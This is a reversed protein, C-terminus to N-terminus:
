GPDFECRAPLMKGSEKGLKKEYQCCNREIEFGGTGCVPFVKKAIIQTNGTIKNLVILMFPLM